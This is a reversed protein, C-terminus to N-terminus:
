KSATKRIRGEYWGYGADLLEAPRIPDYGYLGCSVFPHVELPLTRGDATTGVDLVYAAPREETEYESVMKRIADPNPFSLPDGAYGRVDDIEDNRVFCRWESVLDIKESVSYRREPKVFRRVDGSYLLSNWSKLESVDKVFFRSADAFGNEVVEEGTMTEYFRGAFKRMSRPVELPTMKPDVANTRSLFKRVFDLSGVPITRTARALIEKSVNPREGEVVVLDLASDPSTELMNMLTRFDPNSRDDLEARSFAFIRDM